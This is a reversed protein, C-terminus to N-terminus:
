ADVVALAGNGYGVIISKHAPDYRVNDADDGLSLSGEPAFHKGDFFALRGDGGNAVALLNVEPVFVVGQPESFGSLSKVVKGQQLDVEEVTNNGLACIFLRKGLADYAMHDIRGEINGLPVSQILRLEDARTQLVCAFLALSLAFWSAM